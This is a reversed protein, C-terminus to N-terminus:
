MVVHLVEYALNRKFQLKDAQGGLCRVVVMLDSMRVRGCGMPIFPTVPTIDENKKRGPWPWHLTNDYVRSLLHRLRALHKGEPEEDM